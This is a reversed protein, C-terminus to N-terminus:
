LNTVHVYRSDTMMLQHKSQLIAYCTGVRGATHLDHHRWQVARYSAYVPLAHYWFTLSRSTGHPLAFVDMASEGRKHM